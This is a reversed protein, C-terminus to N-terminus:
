SEVGAIRRGIWETYAPPIAEKLESWTMWDIGMAERAEELTEATRGGSFRSRGVYRVRTGVKYPPPYAKIRSM